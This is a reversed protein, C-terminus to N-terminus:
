WNNPSRKNLHFPLNLQQEPTTVELSAIVQTESRQRKKGGKYRRQTWKRIFGCIPPSYVIIYNYLVYFSIPLLLM